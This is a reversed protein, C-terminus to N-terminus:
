SVSSLFSVFSKLSRTLLACFRVGLLTSVAEIFQGVEGAIYSGTKAQGTTDTTGLFIDGKPTSCLCNLLPRNNTNSWGDSNISCGHLEKFEVIPKLEEDVRAKEKALLTTRLAESGPPKYHPGFSGIAQCMQKFYPSRAINFAMGNAYFCRAVAANTATKDAKAFAQGIKLQQSGVCCGV